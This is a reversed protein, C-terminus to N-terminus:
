EVTEWGGGLAKYLAILDQTVAQDSQALADQAQYTSREAELVNIFGTLGHDYLQRALHLSDQSSSAADALWRHRTQEKAYAVLLDETEEFAGLVVAEYTALAEEQRADQVRINARIRGADFIKWQV